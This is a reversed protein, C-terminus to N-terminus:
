HKGAAGSPGFHLPHGNKLLATIPGGIVDTGLLDRFIEAKRAHLSVLNPMSSKKRTVRVVM